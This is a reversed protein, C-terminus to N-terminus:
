GKDWSLFPRVMIHPRSAWRPFARTGRWVPGSRTRSHSYRNATSLQYEKPYRVGRAIRLTGELSGPEKKMSAHRRPWQPLAQEGIKRTPQLGNRDRMSIDMLVVDPKLHAASAARSRSM